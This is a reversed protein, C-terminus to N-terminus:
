AVLIHRAIFEIVPVSVANGLCKYRSSDSVGETWNDPFGQLRECEIPMLRRINGNVEVGGTNCSDITFAYDGDDYNKQNRGM